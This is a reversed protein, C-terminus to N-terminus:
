HSPVRKPSAEHIVQLNSLHVTVLASVRFNLTQNDVTVGNMGNVNEGIVPGPGSVTADLRSRDVRVALPAGTPEVPFIATGDRNMMASSIVEGDALLQLPLQFNSSNTDDTAFKLSVSVPM